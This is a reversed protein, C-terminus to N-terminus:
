DDELSGGVDFGYIILSILKIKIKMLGKAYTRVNNTTHRVRYDKQVLILAQTASKKCVVVM